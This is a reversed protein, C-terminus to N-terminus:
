YRTNGGAMGRPPGAVRVRECEEGGSSLGTVCPPSPPPSSQVASTMRERVYGSPVPGAIPTTPTPSFHPIPTHTAIATMIRGCWDRHPEGTIEYEIGNPMKIFIGNVTSLDDRTWVGLGQQLGIFFSENILINNSIVPENKDIAERPYNTSSIVTIAHVDPPQNYILHDLDALTPLPSNPSLSHMENLVALYVNKSHATAGLHSYFQQGALPGLPYM